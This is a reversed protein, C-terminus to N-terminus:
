PSWYLRITWGIFALVGMGNHNATGRPSRAQLSVLKETLPSAGCFWGTRIVFWMYWFINVKRKLTLWPKKRRLRDFRYAAEADLGFTFYYCFEGAM